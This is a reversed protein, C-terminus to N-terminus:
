DVTMGDRRRCRNVLLREKHERMESVRTTACKRSTQCEAHRERNFLSMLGLAGLFSASLVASSSSEPFLREGDEGVESVGEAWM